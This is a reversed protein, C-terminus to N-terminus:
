HASISRPHRPRLAERHLLYHRRENIADAYKSDLKIARQYSRLAAQVDGLQHWAIGIKDELIAKDASAAEADRYTDIAERYMKRAMFVDGRQEQTIPTAPTDAALASGTILVSVVFGRFFM